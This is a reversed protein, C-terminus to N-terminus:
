RGPLPANWPYLLHPQAAAFFTAHQNAWTAELETLPTGVELALRLADTGALKDFFSPSTIFGELSGQQAMWQRTWTELPELTFSPWAHGHTATSEARWKEALEGM